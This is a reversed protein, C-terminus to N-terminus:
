PSPTWCKVACRWRADDRRWIAVYRGNRDHDAGSQNVLPIVGTGLTYAMSGREDLGACCPTWSVRKGSKARRSELYERIANKGHLAPLDPVYMVADDTWFEMVADLDKAAAAAAWSEDLEVLARGTMADMRNAACGAFSAAAVVVGGLVMACDNRRKGMM